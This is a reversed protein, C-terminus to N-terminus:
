ELGAFYEEVWKQAYDPLNGNQVAEVAQERYETLAQEYPIEGALVGEGTGLQIESMEGTGTEGTENVTEGAGGLRTPDYITEYTGTKKQPDANGQTGSAAANAGTGGDKDSTGVGAGNGAGESQQLSAGGAGQGDGSQGSQGSQGSAGTAGSKAAANRAMAALAMAQAAAGTATTASADQLLQAAQAADGAQMANAAEALAQAAAKDSTSLAAESLAESAGQADLAELAEQVKLTQESQLAQAVAELGSGRLANLTEDATKQQMQLLAREADDIAELAERKNEARRLAQALEALLKRTPQTQPVDDSLADAGQEVREAQASMDARFTERQLILADQPNPILLSLGLAAACLLVGLWARRPIKMKMARRPEFARLCALADERQMQAMPSEDGALSVATQARERLGHADARKAATCDSVPWVAAVLAAACTMGAAICGVCVWLGEFACAFSVARLVVACGAAALAGFAGWCLARQARIRRKVPALARRVERM